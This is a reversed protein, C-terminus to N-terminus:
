KLTVGTQRAIAALLGAGLDKAGHVPVPVARGDKLMVHHSGKIRDLRWGAAKLREIVDHGNM